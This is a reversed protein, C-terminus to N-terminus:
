NGSFFSVPSEVVLGLTSAAKRWATEFGNEHVARVQNLLKVVQITPVVLEAVELKPIHRLAFAYVSKPPACIVSKFCGKLLLEKLSTCLPNVFQSPIRLDKLVSDEIWRSDDKAFLIDAMDAKIILALIDRKKACVKGLNLKVLVPCLKGVISLLSDRTEDISGCCDGDGFDLILIKLCPLLSGSPITHPSQEKKTIGNKRLGLTESFSHRFTVKLKELNPCRHIIIAKLTSFSEFAPFPVCVNLSKFHEDLTSNIIAFSDEEIVSQHKCFTEYCRHVCRERFFNFLILTMIIAIYCTFYWRIAHKVADANQQDIIGRIFDITDPTAKMLVDKFFVESALNELSSANDDYTNAAM